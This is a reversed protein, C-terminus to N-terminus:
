RLACRFGVNRYSFPADWNLLLTFVGAHDGGNGGGRLLVRNTGGTPYSYIRGMGNSANMNATAPGYKAYTYTPSNFTCAAVGDNNSFSYWGDTTGCVNGNMTAYNTGDTTNAGNVHEWVNGAMDWLIEGNTLGLQRKDACSSRTNSLSANDASAAAVNDAGADNCGLADDVGTNGRFMGGNGVAGGSWNAAVSEANRAAAMWEDNTVLHYGAGLSACAAIAQSQTLTAIPTTGPISAVTAGVNWNWTKWVDATYQTQGSTSAFKMEYKALCFDASATPFESNGPIKAFGTPCATACSAAAYTGSLVGLNCTRTESTCSAPVTVSAAQYATVSTGHAVTQGNFACSALPAVNLNEGDAIATIGADTGTANPNKILGSVAGSASEAPTPPPFNGAVSVAGTDPSIGAVQFYSANRPIGNGAVSKSDFAAAMQSAPDFAANAPTGPASASLALALTKGPLGSSSVRFKEPDLKLKVYDPKGATYNSDEPPQGVDGGTLAVPDGDVYAFAGSLAYAPDHIVYYRPSNGTAASESSIATAVSRVNAKVTADRADGSYGSLALFGVTALIALISVVVILEALTFGSLRRSANARLVRSSVSDSARLSGPVSLPANKRASM